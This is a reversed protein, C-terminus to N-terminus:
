GTRVPEGTFDATKPRVLREYDAYRLHVTDEHTGANVVITEAGLLSRDVFTEVDYLNGFPPMAGLDCDPFAAQFEEEHALRVDSAGLAEAARAFNVRRSAPLALMALKGDAFVIVVKAVARGSVHESEAVAQATFAPPHHHLSYPVGNERLYRELRTKCDM